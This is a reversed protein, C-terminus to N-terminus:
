QCSCAATRAVGRARSGSRMNMQRQSRVMRVSSAYM